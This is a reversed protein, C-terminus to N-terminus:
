EGTRGIGSNLGPTGGFFLMGIITWALFAYILWYTRLHNPIVGAMGRKTWDLM